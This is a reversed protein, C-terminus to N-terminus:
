WRSVDMLVTEEPKSRFQEGAAHPLYVLPPQQGVSSAIKGAHVIDKSLVTVVPPAQICSTVKGACESKIKTLDIVDTTSSRTRQAGPQKELSDDEVAQQVTKHSSEGKSNRDHTKLHRKMDGGCRFKKSCIGCSYPKEGTHIMRHSQLYSSARFAKNCIDCVYNKENLHIKRHLVLSYRRAFKKGCFECQHTKENSHISSQHYKMDGWQRFARGCEECKYPKEGSHLREHVKLASSTFFNKSCQLCNYPRENKHQLEHYRVATKSNFVKDCDPETCPYKKNTKNPLDGVKKRGKKKCPPVSPFTSDCMVKVQNETADAIYQQTNPYSVQENESCANPDEGDSDEADGDESFVYFSGDDNIATESDPNSVQEDKLLKTGTSLQCNMTSAAAAVTSLNFDVLKVIEPHNEIGTSGLDLIQMNMDCEGITPQQMQSDSDMMYSTPPEHSPPIPQQTVTSIARQTAQQHSTNGTHLMDENFDGKNLFLVYNDNGANIHIQQTDLDAAFDISKVIDTATATLQQQQHPQQHQQQHPQHHHQQHPHHPQQQTQYWLKDDATIITRELTSTGGLGDNTDTDVAEQVKQVVNRIGELMDETESFEGAANDSEVCVTQQPPNVIVESNPQQTRQQYVTRNKAAQDLGQNDFSTHQQQDQVNSNTEIDETAARSSKDNKLKKTHKVRPLKPKKKSDGTKGEDSPSGTIPEYHQKLHTFFLLQDEFSDSCLQCSFSKSKAINALNNQVHEQSSDKSHLEQMQHDNSIVSHRQIRETNKTDGLKKSLRKKHPLYTNTFTSNNTALSGGNSEAVDEDDDSRPEGAAACELLDDHSLFNDAVEVADHCAAREMGPGHSSVMQYAIQYRKPSEASKMPTLSPMQICNQSTATSIAISTNAVSSAVHFMKSPSCESQLVSHLSSLHSQNQSQQHHHQQQQQQQTTNNQIIQHPTPQAQHHHQLHHHHHHHHPAGHHTTLINGTNIINNVSTHTTGLLHDQNHYHLFSSTSPAAPMHNVGTLQSHTPQAMKDHGNMSNVVGSVDKSNTVIVPAEHSLQTPQKNVFQLFLKRDNDSTQLSNADVLTQLDETTYTQLGGSGTHHDLLSASQSHFPNGNPTTPGPTSIYDVLLGNPLHSSLLDGGLLSSEIYEQERSNGAPPITIFHLTGNEVHHITRLVGKSLDEQLVHGGLGLDLHDMVTRHHSEEM